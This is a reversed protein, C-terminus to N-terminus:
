PYPDHHRMRVRHRPRGAIEYIGLLMLLVAFVTRLTADPLWLALRAGGLAGGVAGLALAPVLPWDVHGERANEWLGSVTAPLRTVLSTGQALAQSMGLGLVFMPALVPGGSIGVVGAVAGAVVGVLVLYGDRWAVAFGAAFGHGVLLLAAGGLIVVGGFARRLAAEKLGRSWRAALPAVVLAPVGTWVVPLWAVRGGHAYAFAASAASALAVALATGRARLASLGAVETLLPILLTGGGLSALGGGFGGTAGIWLGRLLRHGLGQSRSGDGGEAVPPTGDADARM